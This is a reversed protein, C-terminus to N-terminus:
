YDIGSFMSEEDQGYFDKDPEAKEDMQPCPEGNDMPCVELDCTDCIEYPKKKEKM